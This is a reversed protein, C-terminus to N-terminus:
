TNSLILSSAQDANLTAFTDSRSEDEPTAEHSAESVQAPGLKAVKFNETVLPLPPNPASPYTTMPPPPARGKSMKLLGGGGASPPPTAQIPPTTQKKGSSRGGSLVKKVLRPSEKAKRRAEASSLGGSSAEHHGPKNGMSEEPFDGPATLSCQKEFPPTRENHVVGKKRLIRRRSPSISSPQPSYSEQVKGAPSSWAGKSFPISTEKSLPTSPEKSLPTSPEKSLPTSPEKSLPTSTEKSLPTSTEKSLPTSSEKSLPTSTEKSLPTSTEKSLPTSTEEVPTDSAGEDEEEDEDEIVVRHATVIGEACLGSPTTPRDCSSDSGSHKLFTPSSVTSPYGSDTQVPVSSTKDEESRLDDEDHLGEKMLIVWGERM